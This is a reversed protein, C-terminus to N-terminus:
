KKGLGLSVVRKQLMEKMHGKDDMHGALDLAKLAWLQGMERDERAVIDLAHNFTTTVMWDLEDEPFAMGKQSSSDAFVGLFQNAKTLRPSRRVQGGERAIQLAQDVVELTLGDDLPLIAQFMCRLYKALRQSDFNELEFIENIILRLTAYIVALFVITLWGQEDVM